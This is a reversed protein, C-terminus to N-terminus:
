VFQAVFRAGASKPEAGSETVPRLRADIRDSEFLAILTSECSPLDSTEM